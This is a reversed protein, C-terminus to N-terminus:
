IHQQLYNSYIDPFQTTMYSNWIFYHYAKSFETLYEAMTWGRVTIDGKRHFYLNLMQFCAPKLILYIWKYLSNYLYSLGSKWLHKRNRNRRSLDRYASEIKAEYERQIEVLFKRKLGLIFTIYNYTRRHISSTGTQNLM